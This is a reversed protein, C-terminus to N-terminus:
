RIRIYPVSAPVLTPELRVLGEPLADVWEALDATVRFMTAPIYPQAQDDSGTGFTELRWDRWRAHLVDYVEDIQARTFRSPVVCLQGPLKPSLQRIVADVDTAAVVLVEQDASPRFITIHIIPGSPGRDHVDADLEVVGHRWGGPPPPCPPERWVARTERPPLEASLEEVEISEDGWVGVVSLYGLGPDAASGAAIADADAGIM